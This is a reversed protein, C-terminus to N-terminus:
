FLFSKLQKKFVPLTLNKDKLHAPLSNWISPCSYSFGRIGITKTLIQPVVLNGVTASRLQSRGPCSSVSSCLESIYIPSQEHLCKYAMTCLKFEIRKPFPLWHLQEKILNTIGSSTPLRFILRAASRLVSQLRDSLYQPLGALVGNCYDLRSHILARVLAHATNVTLSRRIARLQRIHYYCVSTLHNVHSMLSLNSDVMVGLDRVHSQPMLQVGAIELPGHPCHVLRRASALWIIETKSPNLRLRNSAMWEKIDAVCASMRTVLSSALNQEAYDYIQLDDAYAHINFGHRSAIAIADASYMIFLVPGLVSGQPVGCILSARVSVVGNYQVSQSRCTLYSTFWNLVTGRIGFICALRELLITHDVTDFAASLDLLALLTAYGKDAAEYVDSMVKLVATETSHNRRYASQTVPLLNNEKLYENTQHNVCRELLKSIFSLNSIPRYNDAKGVDLNSKKLVPTVLACKQTTPFEGDRLSTNCLLTIFPLLDRAFQKVVWTPM